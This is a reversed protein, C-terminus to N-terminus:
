AAQHSHAAGRDALHWGTERLYEALEAHRELATVATDFPEIAARSVDWHPVLSVDYGGGPNADLECTLAAHNRTFTWRLM